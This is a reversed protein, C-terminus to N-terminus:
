KNLQSSIKNGFEECKALEGEALPGRVGKVLISLGDAILKMSPIKQNIRKTMKRVAKNVHVNERVYTDFVAGRKDKLDLKGLEDIFKKASRTPGGMHNPSGILIVDYDLVEKPDVEKIEKVLVQNEENQSVARGIAEAVKRTNGFWSSFVIIFKTLYSV